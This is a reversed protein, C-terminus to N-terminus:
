RALGDLAEHYFDIMNSAMAEKSFVSQARAAGAEGMVRRLMEDQLLRDIAAALAPADNPPVVLGTEGHRNIYSTGTGLETCVLPLACAMAELQVIGTAEARNTSPLVFIDAAHYLRVLEDDSPAGLFSVKGMLGEREAKARWEAELPGSGAVLLHADLQNADLRNAGLHQMADLLVNVGKYHRLKGVFLIIRKGAYRSRISAAAELIAPTAVFRSLDIGYPIVRCKDALPALFPSSRIHAPTCVAILRARRLMLRLFPSYFFGLVRQRVIDSHYSVVHCRSRGLALQGLEGPPYPAHLHAIEAGRELRRLHAYFDLSIPASSVNLLRGAKVVPVGGITERVTHPGTNTVLAQADIGRARLGETLDRIHNEIGGVVPAYDKYIHLVRM